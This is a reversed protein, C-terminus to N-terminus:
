RSAFVAEVTTDAHLVLEIELDDALRDPVGEWRVFRQGAEAEATLRVPIGALYTGEWHAPDAVGPTRESLEISNVRVTGRDPDGLVGLEFTGPLGFASVLHERQVDPRRTMFDELRDVDEHWHEVSVLRDWRAQHTVIEHELRAVVSGLEEVSREPQFTSNLHDAFRSLFRQRLEDHEMLRHFMVPYGDHLDADDTPALNNEFVDYDLNFMGVREGLHDLDFILWRWRGDRVGEGPEHPGDPERWLRVNNGPWDSNAVFVHAIVHDFFNDVDIESEIRDLVMPDPDDTTELYRLFRRFPEDSDPPGAEVEFLRGLQVVADPDAGHVAELYHRDYRERLNHIGWYEGNIFLVSPEYRQTDAEFEEMLHHLYGDMFMLQRTDQGSNRLLLRRHQDPGDEGFFAHDFVRNGYDNRAYLRLSKQAFTRSHNGHLRVGTGFQRDCTESGQPCFEFVARERLRDVPPREWERGRQHFNAPTQWGFAPDFDDSDRWEQYTTGAVYIGLDDDFLFDEDLVLSLVPLDPRVLHDGVFYTAVSEAGFESRARVVTGKQVPGDVAPAVQTDWDLDENPFTTDITTLRDPEDSRDAIDLPEEYLYTRDANAELDPFSGDLTYILRQDQAEADITLEFPEDYFGSSASFTPAGLDADEFCGTENSEGPTPVAFYCTRALDDVHRGFSADRPIEVAPLQDVVTRGDPRVLLVPEGDQAIRFNTHLEGDGLVQDHGSAFIVAYEGPEIVLEPIEWRDLRDPDDTLYWGALNARRQGHNHVEIWDPQEGLHDTLTSANSSVIESIVVHAPDVQNAYAAVGAFAGLILLASLALRVRQGRLEEPPM